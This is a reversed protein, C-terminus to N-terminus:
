PKERILTVYENLKRKKKPPPPSRENGGKGINQIEGEHRLVSKYTDKMLEYGDM